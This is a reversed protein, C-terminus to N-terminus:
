FAISYSNPSAHTTRQCLELSFIVLKLNLLRKAFFALSVTPLPITALSIFISPCTIYPHILNLGVSSVFHTVESSRRLRKISRGPAHCDDGFMAWNSPADPAVRTPRMNFLQQLAVFFKDACCDTMLSQV